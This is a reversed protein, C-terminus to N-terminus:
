MPSGLPAIVIIFLFGQEVVNEKEEKGGDDQERVKGM